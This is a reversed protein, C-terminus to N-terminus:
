CPLYMTSGGHRHLSSLASPRSGVTYRGAPVGMKECQGSCKEAHAEGHTNSHIGGLDLTLPGCTAEWLVSVGGDQDDQAVDCSALLVRAAESSTPLSGADIMQWYQVRLCRVFIEKVLADDPM